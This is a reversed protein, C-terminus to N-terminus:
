ELDEEPDSTNLEEVIDHKKGYDQTDVRDTVKYEPEESEPEERVTEERQTEDKEKSSADTVEPIEDDNWVNLRRAHARRRRRPNDVKQLEYTLRSLKKIVRFPGDAQSLLKASLGVERHPTHLSVLDGVNFEMNRHKQDYYIKSEVQSDTIRKKVIEQAKQLRERYNMGFKFDRPINYSVDLPIKAERGYLLAFPTVKTITHQSTNYVFTIRPLYVNWDTQNSRVYHKLMTKITGCAKEAAGNTQPSYPTSKVHHSATMRLTEEMFHSVFYKANDTLVRNIAGHRTIIDTSILYANASDTEALGGAM